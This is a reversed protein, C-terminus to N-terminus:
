SLIAELLSKREVENGVVTELILTTNEPVRKSAMAIFKEVDICAEPPLVGVADVESRAIMMAGVAAPMGTAPGMHGHLHAVHRIREGEEMCLFEIRMATRTGERVEKQTSVRSLIPVFIKRPSIGFISRTSFLGMKSMLMFIRFDREPLFGGKNIVTKVKIYNPLTVPEPHGFYAVKAAGSLFEVTEVGSGAEVNVLKGDIYQPVKGSLGHAAHFMVGVGEPDTSSDVVWYQRIEDLEDCRDAIAKSLINTIGPSAGLGVVAAIGKKEAEENFSLMKITADADDCIDVYDRGAEIAAKLVTEGFMYFPGVCNVVVDSKRILEVLEDKNRVDVKRAEVGYESLKSALERAKRINYDGIVVESFEESTALEKTAFSGQAGCGGLVLVRM